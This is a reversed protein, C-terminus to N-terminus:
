HGAQRFSNGAAELGYEDEKRAELTLDPLFDNIGAPFLFYSTFLRIGGQGSQPPSIRTLNLSTRSRRPFPTTMWCTGRACHLCHRLFNLFEPASISRMRLWSGL